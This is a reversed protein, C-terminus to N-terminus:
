AMRRRIILGGLGMLALTIPEPVTNILTDTYSGDNDQVTMIVDDGLAPLIGAYSPNNRGILSTNLLLEWSGPKHTAADYTWIMRAVEANMSIISSSVTWEVHSDKALAMLTGADSSWSPATGDTYYTGTRVQIAVGTLLDGDGYSLSGLGNGSGPALTSTTWAAAANGFKAQLKPGSPSTSLLSNVSNGTFASWGAEAATVSAFQGGVALVTDGALWTTGNALNSGAQVSFGAGYADYGYNGSGRVYTGNDLSNGCYAFGDALPNGTVSVIAAQSSAAMAALVMVTAMFVKMM